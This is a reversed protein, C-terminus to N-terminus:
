ADFDVGDLFSLLEANVAEPAEQQAWHGVGPLTLKVRLDPMWTLEGAPPTLGDLIGAEGPRFQRRSLTHRITASMM